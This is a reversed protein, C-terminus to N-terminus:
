AATPGAHRGTETSRGYRAIIAVLGASTPAGAAQRPSM